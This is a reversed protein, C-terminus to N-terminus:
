EKPAKLARRDVLVLRVPGAVANHDKVVGDLTSLGFRYERGPIFEVDGADRGRLTRSLVVAWRGEARHSWSAVETRGPASPLLVRGPATAGPEPVPAQIPTDGAQYPRGGSRANTSNPADFDGPSDGERGKPGLHADEAVGGVRGRGARWVWLDLPASGEPAVMAYEAFARPEAMRWDQLHCARVCSFDEAGDGWLVGLGDEGVGGQSARWAGREWAWVPGADETPDVWEVRLYLRDATYFARADVSVTPVGTGHHCSATATHVADSDVDSEGPRSTRGGRAELRLPVAGAWDAATPPRDLPLAYLRDAELGCGGIWTGLALLLLLALAPM